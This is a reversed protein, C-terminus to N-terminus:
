KHYSYMVISCDQLDWLAGTRYGVVCWKPVSIHENRNWHPTNHSISCTCQPIELIPKNVLLSEHINMFLGSKM